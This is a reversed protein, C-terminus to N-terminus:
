ESKNYRNLIKKLEAKVEPTQVEEFFHNEDLEMHRAPVAHNRLVTIINRKNPAGQYNKYLKTRLENAPLTLMDNLAKKVEPRQDDECQIEVDQLYLLLTNQAQAISSSSVSLATAAIISLSKLRM